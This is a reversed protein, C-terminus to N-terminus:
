LRRRIEREYDPFYRAIVPLDFRALISEKPERELLFEFSRKLLEEPGAKGAALRQHDAAQLTVLKKLPSCTCGAGTHSSESRSEIVRVRYQGPELQAVEIRAGM